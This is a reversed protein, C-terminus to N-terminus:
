AVDESSPHVIVARAKASAELEADTVGISHLARYYAQRSVGFERAMWSVSVGHPRSLKLAVMKAVRPHTDMLKLFQDNTM